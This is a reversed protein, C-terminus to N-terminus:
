GFVPTEAPNGLQEEAIRDLTGDARLSAIAENVCSTLPSGKELVAGFYEQDGAPPLVGVVAGERGAESIQVDRVYFATPYDVVLGDIQGNILAQVAADNTDYVSPETTPAIQETIRQLSTTGVQAGLKYQKLDALTTAGAIPSGTLGVITQEVDYYSESFDVAQARQPSYSVQTMYVDFDKEGPAYAQNFATFRWQVAERDFGLREAIAYAVASEYGEGSYPDTLDTWPSDAPEGPYTTEPDGGFWPPFAPNDAGITLQGATKLTLASAQCQASLSAAVTASPSAAGTPSAATTPSATDTGVPSATATPSAAATETAAATASPAASTAAATTASTPSAAATAATGAPSGAPSATGAGGGGCAVVLLAVVASLVITVRSKM